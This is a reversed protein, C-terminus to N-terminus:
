GRITTPDTSTAANVFYRSVSAALGHRRRGLAIAWIAAIPAGPRFPAASRSDRTRRAVRVGGGRMAQRNHAKIWARVRRSAHWSANDWIVLLPQKGEARLRACVWALFDETVQSVPRGQVFRLLMQDTDDRLLGYSALGERQFAHLAYHVTGVACHLNRAIAPARQGHASALLIQCRRATFTEAARLGAHL